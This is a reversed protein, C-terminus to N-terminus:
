AWQGNGISWQGSIRRSICEQLLGNCSTYKLKTKISAYTGFPVHSNGKRMRQVITRM